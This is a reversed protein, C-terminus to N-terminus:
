FFFEKASSVSVAGVGLLLKLQTVAVSKLATFLEFQRFWYDEVEHM